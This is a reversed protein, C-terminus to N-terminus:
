LTQQLHNFATEKMIERSLAECVFNRAFGINRCIPAGFQRDQQAALTDAFEQATWGIFNTTLFVMALMALRGSIEDRSSAAQYDNMLAIPYVSDYVPGNHQLTTGDLCGVAIRDGHTKALAAELLFAAGNRRMAKKSVSDSISPLALLAHNKLLHGGKDRAVEKAVVADAVDISESTTGGVNIFRLVQVAPSQIVNLGAARCASIRVSDRTTKIATEWGQYLQQINARYLAAAFCRYQACGEASSDKEPIRSLSEALPQTARVSACSQQLTKVSFPEFTRLLGPPAAYPEFGPIAVIHNKSNGASDYAMYAVPLKDALDGFAAKLLFHVTAVWQNGHTGHGCVVLPHISNTNRLARLLQTNIKANM